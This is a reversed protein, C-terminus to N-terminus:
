GWDPWGDAPGFVAPVLQSVVGDAVNLVLTVAVLLSVLTGVNAPGPERRKSSALLLWCIWVSVLTGSWSKYIASWEFTAAGDIAERQLGLGVALSLAVLAVLTWPGGDLREWRPARFTLVRAAESLWSFGPTM